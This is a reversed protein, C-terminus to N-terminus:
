LRLIVKQFHAIFTAVNLYVHFDSWLDRIQPPRFDGEAMGM